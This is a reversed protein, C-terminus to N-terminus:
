CTVLKNVRNITITDIPTDKNLLASGLLTKLSDVRYSALGYAYAGGGHFYGVALGKLGILLLLSFTFIRKLTGSGKLCVNINKEKAVTM